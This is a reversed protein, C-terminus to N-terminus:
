NGWAMKKLAGTRVDQKKPSDGLMGIAGLGVGAAGPVLNVPDLAMGLFTSYDDKLSGDKTLDLQGALPDAIKQKAENYTTAAKKIYDLPNGFNSAMPAAGALLKSSDKFRKDFAANTSRVDSPKSVFIGDDELGVRHNNADLFSSVNKKGLKQEILDMGEETSRLRRGNKPVDVDALMLLERAKEEDAPNFNAKDRLHLPYIVGEGHGAYQDAYGASPTTYVGEGYKYTDGKRAGSPRFEDIEGKYTTGHYQKKNLDFGIEKARSGRDGQVVDLANLYKQRAPGTLKTSIEPSDVVSLLKEAVAKDKLADDSFSGVAKLIKDFKGL